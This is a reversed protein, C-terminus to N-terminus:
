DVQHLVPLLLTMLRETAEQVSEDSDTFAWHVMMAELAGLFAGSVLMATQHDAGSHRQILAVMREAWADNAVRAARLTPAQELVAYAARVTSANADIHNSVAMCAVRTAEPLPADPDLEAVAEDFALLWRRPIELVIDEKTPFRRYATSRSVGAAEAIDGMTVQEFGSRAFLAFAAEIMNQRTEHHRRERLGTM